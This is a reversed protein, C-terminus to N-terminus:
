FKCCILPMLSEGCVTSSAFTISTKWTCLSLCCFSLSKSLNSFQPVAVHCDFTYHCCTYVSWIRSLEPISFLTALGAHAEAHVRSSDLGQTPSSALRHEWPKVARTSQVQYSPFAWRHQLQVKSYLADRRHGTYHCCHPCSALFGLEQYLLQCYM